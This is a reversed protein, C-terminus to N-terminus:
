ITTYLYHSHIYEIVADPMLYRVSRAERM